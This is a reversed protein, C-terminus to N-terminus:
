IPIKRAGHGGTSYPSKEEETVIVFQNVEYEGGPDITINFQLEPGWCDDNPLEFPLKVKHEKKWGKEVKQFQAGFEKQGGYSGRMYEVSVQVPRPTEGGDNIVEIILEGKEIRWFSHNAQLVKFDPKEKNEHM